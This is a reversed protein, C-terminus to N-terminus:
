RGGCHPCSQAGTLLNVEVALHTPCPTVLLEGNIPEVPPPPPPPAAPKDTSLGSAGCARAAAEFWDDSAYQLGLERQSVSAASLGMRDALDALSLGAKLRLDRLKRGPTIPSM